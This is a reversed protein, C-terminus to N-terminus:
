TDESSALKIAFQAGMKAWIGRLINVAMKLPREVAQIQKNEQNSSTM